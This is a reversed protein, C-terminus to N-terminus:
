EVVLRTSAMRSRWEHNAIEEETDGGCGGEGIGERGELAGARGDGEGPEGGGGLAEHEGEEPMVVALGQEDNGGAVAFGFGEEFGGIGEEGQEFGARGGRLEDRREVDERVLFELGM